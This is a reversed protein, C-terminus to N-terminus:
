KMKNQWGRSKWTRLHTGHTCTAVGRHDILFMEPSELLLAPRMPSLRYKVDRLFLIILRNSRRGRNAEGMNVLKLWSFEGRSVKFTICVELSLFTAFQIFCFVQLITSIQSITPAFTNCLEVRIKKLKLLLWLLPLFNPGDLCM